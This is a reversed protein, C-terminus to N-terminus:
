SATGSVASLTVQSLAASTEAGGTSTSNTASLSLFGLAGNANADVGGGGDTLALLLSM